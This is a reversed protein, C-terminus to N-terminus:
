DDFDNAAAKRADFLQPQRPTRARTPAPPTPSPHATRAVPLLPTREPEAAAALQARRTAARGLNRALGRVCVGYTAHVLTADLTAPWGPRWLHRLALRLQEDTPEPAPHPKTNM